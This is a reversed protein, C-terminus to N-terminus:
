HEHTGKTYVVKGQKEGALKLWGKFLEESLHKQSKGAGLM